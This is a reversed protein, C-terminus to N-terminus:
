DNNAEFFARAFGQPTMSRIRWRDKTPPLNHMKSGEIPDVPSKIPINFKGWVLTKKTYQDIKTGDSQLGYDCPNFVLRPEGGLEQYRLRKLRGVPNELAWYKPKLLNIIELCDDVVQLAGLTRGDADKEAWYRAGSSSFHTCPPAALIVDFYEINDKFYELADSVSLDNVLPDIILIDWGAEKYPKSWSGTGGCLDLLKKTM